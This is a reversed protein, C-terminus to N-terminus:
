GNELQVNGSPIKGSIRCTNRMQKFDWLISLGPTSIKAKRYEFQVLPLGVRLHLQTRYCVGAKTVTGGVGQVVVNDEYMVQENDFQVSPDAIGIQAMTDFAQTIPNGSPEFAVSGFLLDTCEYKM